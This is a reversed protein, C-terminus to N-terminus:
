YIYIHGHRQLLTTPFLMAPTLNKPYLPEWISSNRVTTNRSKHIFPIGDTKENTAVKNAHKSERALSPPPSTTHVYGDMCMARRNFRENLTNRDSKTHLGVTYM